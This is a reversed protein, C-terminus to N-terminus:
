PSRENPDSIILRERRIQRDHCGHEQGVEMEGGHVGGRGPRDRVGGEHQVAVVDEPGAGQGVERGLVARQLGAAEVAAEDRGRQDVAVGMEDMGAVARSLELGAQVPGGVLLDGLGAAADQGGDAGGARSRHLVEDLGREGAEVREEGVSDRGHLDLGAIAEVPVGLEVHEAGGAAERGQAGDLDAGAEEAGM